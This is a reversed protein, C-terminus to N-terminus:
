VIFQLDILLPQYHPYPSTSWLCRQKKKCITERVDEDGEPARSLADAVYLLKGPIHQATYKFKALRLRFRLIRPPLDDLHKTNLLPILPKHDSEILFSRGLIYNRFKECAWTSALAEKEIQAYKRETDSLSRSDYTVPKWNGDNQQLLVVGLGYSSAYASM